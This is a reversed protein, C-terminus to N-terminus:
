VSKLKEAISKMGAFMKRAKKTKEPTPPTILSGPVQASGGLTHRACPKHMVEPCSASASPRIRLRESLKGVTSLKGVAFWLLFCCCCNLCLRVPLPLCKNDLVCFRALLSGSVLTFCLDFFNKYNKKFFLLNGISM